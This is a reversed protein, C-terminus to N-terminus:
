QKNRLEEQKALLNIQASLLDTQAKLLDKERGIAASRGTDYSVLANLAGGIAEFPILLCGYIESPKDINEVTLMGDVFTLNTKKQVCAARTVDVGVLTNSDPIMAMRRGISNGNAILEIFVPKPLRACISWICDDPQPLYDDASASNKRGIHEDLSVSLNGGQAVLMKNFRRLAESDEISLITELVFDEM